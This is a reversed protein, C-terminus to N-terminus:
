HSPHLGAVLVTDGVACAQVADDIQTYDGPVTLVGAGAVGSGFLGITLAFLFISRKM